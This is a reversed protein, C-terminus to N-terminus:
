KHGEGATYEFLNRLEDVNLKRLINQGGEIINEFMEIKDKQLNLIKEEVTGLTILKYVNVKKTQGIRHARDIAQNEGMPNWWPDVLVVTDAATLNLGFGGTKLSILFARVNANNNFNDVRKHRAKTDGDMYEFVIKRKALYQRILKLTEVFQSFVLVKRGSDIADELIIMLQEMKGSLDPQIKLDKQVLTPHNCIQRLRTLAALVHIYNGTDIQDFRNIFNKKVSDIVEVYLKEQIPSMRCYSIQEQKDPLEILVDKKKRRLIFPSILAALHEQKEHKELLPSVYESKFKRPSPLYGPLLFDFISWLETPNNEMPTGTLALRYRANLKKIAKSRLAGANKIHQAEDLIVYNFFIPQLEDLDNMIISYSAIYVQVNPTKLLEVREDKNGEYIIYNLRPNFKEIEAAWNYLLTKPCIVLSRTTPPLESLISIAQITKGLGMDDALIGGLHFNQLMKLWQHGAKQYSRMVPMLILPVAHDEDMKRALIAEFMNQLYEDGKIQIGERISTLQYIYPINYVSLKYYDSETKQSRKMLREVDRFTEQNTFYLLRGDDLKLFKEKRKFFKKLEQHTFELDKYQYTVEYEFWDIQDTTKARITPMLTVKYIFEKKLEDSLQINWTPDTEEFITKKLFDIEEEGEFLMKHEHSREEAIAQPLKQIFSFIQYRVQPPIYFWTEKKQQDYRVLEAPYYLVSMPVSVEQSYALFGELSIQHEGTKNLKFTPVPSQDYIDPLEISEDFDLYCKIIGLQHTVVSAFYVLDEKRLVYGEGLVKETIEKKFPLQIYHLVNKLFIYSMRNVFFASINEGPAVSFLYQDNEIPSVLFSLQYPDNEFVIRDGTEKVYIKNQLIRMLPIFRYFDRKYITFFNSSRSFSCKYEQLMKLLAIEENTFADMQKHALEIQEESVDKLEKELAILSILRIDIPKYYRFYFRVKDNTDYIGSVAIQTNLLVRQWYENYQLLRTQYTQVVPAELIDTSLFRYAYDLVTLYHPCTDEQTCVTCHQELIKRNTPDYIIKLTGPFRADDASAAKFQFVVDGNENKYYNYELNGLQLSKVSSRFYWTNSHEHYENGFLRAM